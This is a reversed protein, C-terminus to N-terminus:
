GILTWMDFMPAVLAIVVAGVMLALFLILLPELASSLREATRQVEDEYFEAVRALMKELTGTEEGIGIMELVMPPFLGSRALPSVLSQGKRVSDLAALIAAGYQRNGVAREAVALAKLIPIGSAMLGTLVRCLRAICAKKVLDGFVPVRLILRDLILGAWEQRFLQYLGVGVGALSTLILWWWRAAFKSATLLIRTPLPLEGGMDSFFQVFKPVVFLLLLTVVTVALTSVVMPYIMASRVKQRVQEEREMQTALREMVVDLIGGVEGAAVMHVMVRPFVRSRALAAALTEGNEVASLAQELARRLTQNRSQRALVRLVTVVPLGASLMTSFQRTLLVIEAVSVINLLPLRSLLGSLDRNPELSLVLLGQSRLREVAERSGPAELHGQLLRGDPTRARYSFASM